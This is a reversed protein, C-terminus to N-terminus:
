AAEEQKQNAVWKEIVPQLVRVVKKRSLNKELTIRNEDVNGFTEAACETAGNGYCSITATYTELDHIKLFLMDMKQTNYNNLVWDGLRKELEKRKEPTLAVVTACGYSIGDISFEKYDSYFIDRETMGKYAAFEEEMALFYATRDKLGAKKTLEYVAQRDLDTTTNSQLNDTDSLIASLMMGAMDKEIPVNAELYELWVITSACGIPMNRYYVPASTKVDGILNHHDIIELVNAKDMGKVAQAFSNHDVLIINKGSADELLMPERIGFYKLAFATEANPPAAIRAEVNIGLKRKLNAYAIASCVSDSDPPNHGVVYVTDKGYDIGQMYAPYNIDHKRSAGEASTYSVLFGVLLILCGLLIPHNQNRM